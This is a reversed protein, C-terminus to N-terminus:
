MKCVEDFKNLAIGNIKIMYKYNYNMESAVTVLSKGQIYVKELILKYPQEVKQIQELIRNQIESYEQIKKIMDNINDLLTAVMEGIKDQAIPTGKPMDSLTSTIHMITTRYEELYELRGKIWEQNYKYDKLDERTMRVESEEFLYYLRYRNQIIENKKIARDFKRATISLFKVVEIANGVRVCQEKDKEDYLGYIKM